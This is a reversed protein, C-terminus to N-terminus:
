IFTSPRQAWRLRRQSKCYERDALWLLCHLYLIPIATTLVVSLICVNYADWFGLRILGVKWSYDTFESSLYLKIIQDLFFGFVFAFLVGEVLDIGGTPNPTNVVITYLVLFLLTFFLNLLNQYRPVLTLRRSSLTGKIRQTDFHDKFRQSMLYRYEAFALANDETYQVNYFGRWLANICKQFNSAAIVRTAHLDVALEVASTPDTPEGDKIISYRLLRIRPVVSRKLLIDTHLYHENDVSDIILKAM